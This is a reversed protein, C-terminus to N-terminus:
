INKNQRCSDSGHTRCTAHLCVEIYHIDGFESFFDLLEDKTVHRPLNGVWIGPRPSFPTLPRSVVCIM